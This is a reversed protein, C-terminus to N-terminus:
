LTLRAELPSEAVAVVADDKGAEGSPMLYFREFESLLVSLRRLRAVDMESEIASRLLSEVSVVAAGELRSDASSLLEEAKRLMEILRPPVVDRKPEMPKRVPM